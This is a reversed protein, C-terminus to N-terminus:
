VVTYTVTKAALEHGETDRASVWFTHPGPTTTDIPSGSESTGTLSAVAGSFSYGATVIENLRYTASDGPSTITIAPSGPGSEPAQTPSDAASTSAQSASELATKSGFYFAVIAALTTTLAVVIDNALRSSNNYPNEVLLYGLAFGIVVIVALAMSTRSLGPTGEPRGGPNRRTQSLWLDLTWPLLLVLGLIVAFGIVFALKVGFDATAVFMVLAEKAHL